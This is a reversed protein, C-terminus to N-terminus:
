KKNERWPFVREQLAPVKDPPDTSYEVAWRSHRARHQYKIYTVTHILLDVADVM